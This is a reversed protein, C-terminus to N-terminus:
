VYYTMQFQKSIWTDPFLLLVSPSAFHFSCILLNQGFGIIM